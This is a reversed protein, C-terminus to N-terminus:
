EVIERSKYIALVEEASLRSHETFLVFFGYKIKM